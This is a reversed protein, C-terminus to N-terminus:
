GDLARPPLRTLLSEIAIRDAAAAVATALERLVAPEDCAEVRARLEPRVAGHRDVLALIITRAGDGFARRMPESRYEYNEFHMEEELIRRPGEELAAYLLRLM